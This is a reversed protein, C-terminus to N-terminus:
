GVKLREETNHSLVSRLEDMDKKKRAVVEPDEEVKKPAVNHGAGHFETLLMEDSRSSALTFSNLRTSSDTKFEKFNRPLEADPLLPGDFCFLARWFNEFNCTQEAATITSPDDFRGLSRTSEVREPKTKETKKLSSKLKKIEEPM